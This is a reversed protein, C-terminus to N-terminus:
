GVRWPQHPPNFSIHPTFPMQLFPPTGKEKQWTGMSNCSQPLPGCFGLLRELWFGQCNHEQDQQERELIVGQSRFFKLGHQREDMQHINVTQQSTAATIEM